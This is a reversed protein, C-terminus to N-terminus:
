KVIHVSYFWWKEKGKTKNIYRKIVVQVKREVGDLKVRARYGIHMTLSEWLTNQYQSKLLVPKIESSHELMKKAIPLLKKSIQIREKRKRNKIHRWGTRSIRVSIDTGNFKITSGLSSWDKYFKSSDEGLKETNWLCLDEKETNLLPYNLWDNLYPKILNDLAGKSHEGFTNEKPIHILTSDDYEYDKDVRVWWAHPNKIDCYKRGNKDVREANTYILIVPEHSKKWRDIHEKLKEKNRYPSINVYKDDISSLYGSGAKSQVYIRVGKDTGDKFRPIIEGDLGSDNEQGYGQWGWYFFEQTYMSIIRLGMAETAHNAMINKKAMIQYLNNNLRNKGRRDFTAM